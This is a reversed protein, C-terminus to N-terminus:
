FIEKIKELTLKRRNKQLERLNNRGIRLEESVIEEQKSLEKTIHSIRSQAKSIASNAEVFKEQLSSELYIRINYQSKKASIQQQIQSIREKASIM